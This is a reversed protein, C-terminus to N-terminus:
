KLSNRKKEAEEDLDTEPPTAGFHCREVNSKRRLDERWDSLAEVLAQGASNTRHAYRTCMSLSAHGLVGALAHINQSAEAAHTAFTHRLDHFRIRRGFLAAKNVNQNLVRRVNAPDLPGGACSSWVFESSLGAKRNQELIERVRKSMPVPRNSTETKPDKLDGKYLTASVHMTGTRWDVDCWRLALIEGLRMGTELAFEFLHRWQEPIAELFLPVEDPTLYTWGKKNPPPKEVLDVPNSQILGRILATRLCRGLHRLQITVTANSLPIALQQQIYRDVEWVTIQDLRLHGFFPVLHNKLNLRKNRRENLSNQITMTEWWMMAYESFLPSPQREIRPNRLGDEVDARVEAERRQATRYTGKVKHRKKRQIKTGDAQPEYFVVTVLYLRDELKTISM